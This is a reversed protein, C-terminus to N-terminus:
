VELVNEENNADFSSLAVAVLKLGRCREPRGYQVAKKCEEPSSFELFAYGNNMKGDAMKSMRYHSDFLVIVPTAKIPRM